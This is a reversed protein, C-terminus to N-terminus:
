RDASQLEHDGGRTDDHTHTILSRLRGLDRPRNVLVGGIVRDGRHWTVAFDREDLSGDITTRDAAQHSGLQQMRVGYQDTWFFAPTPRPAPLGLMAHAVATAERVAAEWQQSWVPM